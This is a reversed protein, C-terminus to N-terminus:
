IYRSRFILYFIYSSITFIIFSSFLTNYINWGMKLCFYVSLVFIQWLWVSYFALLSTSIAKTSGISIYTQYILFAFVMPVASSTIISFDPSILKLLSSYIGVALGGFLFYNLFYIIHSIM